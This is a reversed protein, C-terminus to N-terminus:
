QNTSVEDTLRKYEFIVADTLIGKAINMQELVRKSDESGDTIDGYRNLIMLAKLKSSGAYKIDIINRDVILNLRKYDEVKRVISKKEAPSLDRMKEKLEKSDIDGESFRKALDKQDLKNFGEQIKLKEEQERFKELRNLSRNFDSSFSEVRKITSKFLNKGLEKGTAELDKDSVIADAGGYMIGIFPNTNPTTLFSEVAAKVRVPSLNHERGLKKYFDEVNKMTQGELPRPDKNINRALPQDRYFDHGSTYTFIAKLVPNRSVNQAPSNLSIPSINTNFADFVEQGIKKSSKEERGSIKLLQNNAINDTFQFIPIMQHTKAVKLVQYQGDKNKKGTPLNFYQMKQYPSIGEMADLYIDIASKDEDEEDKNLNIITLAMGITFSTGLVGAQMVRMTTTVPDKVFRDTAVRTGQVATNIYPLLAELDKTIAGGQNFDLLSRANAVARNYIEDKISNDTVSDMSDLGRNKLENKITRQFLAMRFMIESYTSFNRLTASNFISKFRDMARRSVMKDFVKALMTDKKLRGQTSLFSMDGGYEIYKSFLNGGTVDKKSRSIEKIGKYADKAVQLIAKPVFNSYEPSFLSTFLFDRPTNVIAFAPNNGTAIGKLLSSLSFYGVLEKQKPSAWFGQTNNFWSDHLSEEIYFEKRNGNEYWYAKKFNRPTKELPGEKIKSSLEKFYRVFRADEKSLDKKGKLKEFREKAKPYEKTIFERNINNMAMARTRAVLSTSLLWESNTVLSGSSGETLFMIQNKSLGGTDSKEKVASGMSVNGEFDLIHQLFLRPQYDLGNLSDFAEKSILGNKEMAKLLDSYVKFYSDARQDLNEFKKDGLESKYQDLSKQAVEGDIYDPHAVPALDKEARSKDITVFRRLQIIEDLANRDSDKLGKYIKGYSDEFMRRAKGSSGHSNIMLDKVSQAGIEDVLKKSIFQRDTFMRIAKRTAEKVKQRFPKKNELAERSKKFAEDTKSKAEDNNVSENKTISDNILSELNEETIQEKESKSLNKYWSTNKIAEIGAKIVDSATQATKVALRMARVATRAVAVPMNLGLTEKGFNDLDDEWKKLTSDLNKLPGVNNNGKKDLFEQFQKKDTDSGLIHTNDANLVIFDDTEVNLTDITNKLIIGDHGREIARDTIMEYLFSNYGFNGDFDSPFDQINMKGRPTKLKTLDYGNPSDFSLKSIDEVYPNQFNLLVKKVHPGVKKGDALAINQRVFESAGEHASSFYFTNKYNSKSSEFKQFDNHSGHYVINPVKSNPFISKIYEKYQQKTGIDTLDKSEKYIQNIDQEVTRKRPLVHRSNIEADVVFINGQDDKLVNRPHLDSVVFTGNSFTADGKNEFGLGEMYDSIDKPSALGANDIYDQKFIPEVYPARKPGNDLGTFGVFEYKTNPFLQNHLEVYDFLGSITKSNFLNNSKYLTRTSADLVNTNENG